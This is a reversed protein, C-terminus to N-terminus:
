CSQVLGEGGDIEKKEEMNDGLGFLFFSTGGGISLRMLFHAPM